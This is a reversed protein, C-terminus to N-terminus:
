VQKNIADLFGEKKLFKKMDEYIADCGRLYTDKNLGHVHASIASGVAFVSYIVVPDNGDMLMKLIMEKAINISHDLRENNLKSL